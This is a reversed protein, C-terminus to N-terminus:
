GLGGWGLDLLRGMAMAMARASTTRSFRLYGGVV